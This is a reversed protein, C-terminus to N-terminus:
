LKRQGNGEDLSGLFPQCVQIPGEAELLGDLPAVAIQPTGAYIVKMM